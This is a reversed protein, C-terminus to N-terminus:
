IGGYNISKEAIIVKGSIAEAGAAFIDALAKSGFVALPESYGSSKDVGNSRYVIWVKSQRFQNLQQHQNPFQQGIGVAQLSM